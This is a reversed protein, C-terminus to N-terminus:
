GNECCTLGKIFTSYAQIAEDKKMTQGHKTNPIIALTKDQSSAADYLEQSFKVPTTSDESGALFLLPKRYGRILEVNNIEALEPSVKVTSFLKSWSPVVQEVLEPVTSIAGDLILGDITRESAIYSALLSGMSLGHIATPMNNPLNKNAFDFINLADKQLDVVTIARNKESVGVGRYDFWIVNVPLLAFQDLIGASQSIKMGSGGFFVINILADQRLLKIGKLVSGEQTTLAVESINILATNHTVKSNINELDLKAEVEDDQYIFSDATINVACGSLLFLLILACTKM